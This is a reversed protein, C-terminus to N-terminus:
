GNCAIGDIIAIISNSHLREILSMYVKIPFEFM